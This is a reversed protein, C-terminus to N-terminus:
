AFIFIPSASDLSAAPTVPRGCASSKRAGQPFKACRQQNGGILGALENEDAALLIMEIRCKREEGYVGVHAQRDLAAATEGDAGGDLDPFVGIDWCDRGFEIEGAFVIGTVQRARTVHRAVNLNM